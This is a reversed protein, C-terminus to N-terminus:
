EHLKISFQNSAIHYYIWKITQLCEFDPLHLRYHCLIIPNDYILLPNSKQIQIPFQQKNIYCSTYFM